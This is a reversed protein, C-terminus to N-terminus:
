SLMRLGRALFGYLFAHAFGIAFLFVLPTLDLFGVRIPYRKLPGILLDIWERCLGALATSGAFLSVFSGIIALLLLNQIVPLVAVWGSLSVLLLRLGALPGWGSPGTVSLRPPVAVAAFLWALLVGAFLLGPFRLPMGIDTFPRSVHFLADSSEGRSADRRTRAYILSICWLKFLFVAFSMASMVLCAPLSAGETWTAAFGMRISWNVNNPVALGRFVILFVLAAAAIARRSLFPLVPQLFGILTEQIQRVPALMTNRAFAASDLRWIELWFLMLFLNFLTDWMGFKMRGINM